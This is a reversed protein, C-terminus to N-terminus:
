EYRQRVIIQGVCKLRDIRYKERLAEQVQNGFTRIPQDHNEDPAKDDAPKEKQDAKKRLGATNEHGGATIIKVGEIIKM